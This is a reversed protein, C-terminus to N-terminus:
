WWVGMCEVGAGGVCVCACRHGTGLVELKTRVAAEYCAAAEQLRGAALYFGGVNHLAFALRADHPGYAATLIALAQTAAPLSHM